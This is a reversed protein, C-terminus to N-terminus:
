TVDFISNGIFEALISHRPVAESDGDIFYELLKKLRNAELYENSDRPVKELERIAIKKLIALEYVLSSNFIADAEEQYPYIYRDEGDRVNKWFQITQQASYGRFQFDRVIRRILRYDSTAIYNHQDLNLHTLANIYIKFKVNEPINKSIEPNLGHIGEIILIQNEKLQFLEKRWERKGTKFNYYPMLTAENSLLKIITDNFLKLDLAKPSEFDYSGDELLPTDVRNVYFDDMSIAIPEKGLINLHIALRKSFTTKGASSPGSILIIRTDPKKVFIEDALMGLKKEMKTESMLVLDNMKGEKIKKNLQAIHTVGILKGWAEFEQFVEFMQYQDVFHEQSSLWIGHKYLCLNFHDFYCTNPLMIGYFYNDIGDLHYISSLESQRISLLDAKEPYGIKHFFQVAQQTPVIDRLIPQKEEVLTRMTEYIISCDEETLQRDELTVECFFGNSLAHLINVTAEPFCRHIAAIFLFCLSREYIQHGIESNKDIFELDGNESVVWNLDHLIGNFVVAYIDKKSEEPLIELVPVEKELILKQNNLNLQIM